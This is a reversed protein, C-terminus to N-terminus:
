SAPVQNVKPLDFADVNDHAPHRRGVPGAAFQRLLNSTVRRTFRITRAQLTYDGCRGTLACTWRLTGAAFVGAGSKTTYYVSQASTSVGGCSYSVHSLIRMPRPTSAVPYVRDAEIGVLHAFEQGRRVRTGEFGWWRPSVVRYPADVPFCEYLMGILSNEPKRAPPDRFRATTRAPQVGRMPDLHADSRYGVVVRRRGTERDELRIRWYMTNAGLFALNTGSRRAELVSNRMSLTWYEDHGMSVYGRAGSLLRTRRSLDLNTFYALPLGLREAWVVVPVVGYMMQGAGPPPYPRDFSVAWSRRDTSPGVYLSYGGWDNYAQWTTVPAVLAVKGRSSRSRVFYPVHAQWRSGTTLKFVYAGPRWGRTDVSLIRRWPAVITRTSYPAFAASAQQRGRSVRSRWVLRGTGGEYWGLRFAHVRFTRAITSVKLGVRVGAVGSAVTPYGEIQRNTAPKTLRWADTGFPRESVASLTM